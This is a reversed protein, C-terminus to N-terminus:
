IINHSSVIAADKDTIHMKAGFVALGIGQVIKQFVMGAFIKIQHAVNNVTPFDFLVLPAPFLTVGIHYSSYQSMGFAVGSHDIDQAVMIFKQSRKQLVIQVKTSYFKVILNLVNTSISSVIEHYM